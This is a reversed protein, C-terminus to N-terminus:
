LRAARHIRLRRLQKSSPILTLNYSNLVSSYPGFARWQGYVLTTTLLQLHNIASSICKTVFGGIPTGARVCQRVVWGAMGRFVDAAIDFWVNM